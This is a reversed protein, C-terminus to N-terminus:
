FALFRLLAVILALVAAADDDEPGACPRGVARDCGAADGRRLSGGPVAGQAEIRYRARSNATADSPRESTARRPRRRRVRAARDEVHQKRPWFRVPRLPLRMVTARSGADLAFAWSMDDNPGAIFGDVSM